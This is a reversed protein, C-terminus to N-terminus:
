NSKYSRESITTQITLDMNERLSALIGSRQTLWLTAVITVKTEDVSGDQSDGSTYFRMNRLIVRKNEDRPEFIDIINVANAYDDGIVRYLFCGSSACPTITTNGGVDERTGYIYKTGWRINLIENGDTTYRNTTWAPHSLASDFVTSIGSERVDTAIRETMERASDALLRSMHLKQSLLITQIYVEIIVVSMIAFITTVVIM